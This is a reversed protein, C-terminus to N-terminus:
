AEAVQAEADSGETAVSTAVDKAGADILDDVEQQFADVDEDFEYDKVGHLEESWPEYLEDVFCESTATQGLKEVHHLLSNFYVRILVVSCLSLTPVRGKFTRGLLTMLVSVPSDDGHRADISLILSLAAAAAYGPWLAGDFQIISLASYHMVLDSNQNEEPSLSFARSLQYCTASSYTEAKRTEPSTTPSLISIKGDTEDDDNQSNSAAQPTNIETSNLIGYLEQMNDGKGIHSDQVLNNHSLRRVRSGRLRCIPGTNFKSSPRRSVITRHADSGQYTATPHSGSKSGAHPHSHRLSHDQIHDPGHISRLSYIGPIRFWSHSSTPGSPNQSFSEKMQALVEILQSPPMGAVVHTIASEATDGLLIHPGM